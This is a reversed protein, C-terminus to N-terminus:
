HQSPLRERHLRTVLRRRSTAPAPLIVNRVKIFRPTALWPGTVTVARSLGFWVLGGWVLGFWVLDFWVLGFLPTDGRHRQRTCEREEEDKEKQRSTKPQRARAHVSERESGGHVLSTMVLLPGEMVRQLWHLGAGKEWSRGM